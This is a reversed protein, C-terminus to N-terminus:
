IRIFIRKKFPFYKELTRKAFYDELLRQRHLEEVALKKSIHVEDYTFKSQKLLYPDTLSLLVM